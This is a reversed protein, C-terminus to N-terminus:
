NNISIVDEGYEEKLKCFLMEINESFIIYNELKSPNVVDDKVNFKIKTDMKNLIMEKACYGDMNGMYIKVNMRGYRTLSTDISGINNTTVVLMLKSNEFVGDFLQLVDSMTLKKNTSQQTNDKNKDMDNINEKKIINTDRDIDEIVIIKNEVTLINEEQKLPIVRRPIYDDKPIITDGYFMKVGEGLSYIDSLKVYHINRNTYNSLCKIFSTKGTGPPGYLLFSLKSLNTKSM